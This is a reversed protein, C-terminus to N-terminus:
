LSNLVPRFGCVAKTVVTLTAGHNHVWGNITELNQRIAAGDIILVPDCLKIALGRDDRNEMVIEWISTKTM